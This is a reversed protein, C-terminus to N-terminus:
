SFKKKAQELDGKLVEKTLAGPNLQYADYDEGIKQNQALLEKRKLERATENLVLLAKNMVEKFEEQQYINKSKAHADLARLFLDAGHRYEQEFIKREEGPRIPEIEAM